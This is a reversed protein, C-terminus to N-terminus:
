MIAHDSAGFPMKTANNAPGTQRRMDQWERCLSVIHAYFSTRILQISYGPGNFVENSRRETPVEAAQQEPNGHSIM